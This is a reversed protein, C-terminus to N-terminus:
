FPEFIVKIAFFVLILLLGFLLLMVEGLRKNNDKM